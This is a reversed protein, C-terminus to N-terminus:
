DSCASFKSQLVSFHSVIRMKTRCYKTIQQLNQYRRYVLISSSKGNWKDFRGNWEMRLMKWIGYRYTRTSYTDAFFFMLDLNLQIINNIKCNFALVAAFNDVM